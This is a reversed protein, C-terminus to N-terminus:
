GGTKPGHAAASGGNDPPTVHIGGPTHAPKGQSMAKFGFFGVVGVVVIVIAVVVPIPVANKM